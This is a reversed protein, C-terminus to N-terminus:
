LAEGDQSDPSEQLQDELDRVRQRLESVEKCLAQLSQALSGGYLGTTLMNLSSTLVSNVDSQRWIMPDLYARVEEHINRRLSAWLKGILPTQSQVQFPEYIQNAQQKLQLLNQELEEPPSGFTHYQGMAPEVLEGAHWREALAIRIEEMLWDSVLTQYREQEPPSLEGQEVKRAIERRIKAMMAPVDIWEEPNPKQMPTGGRYTHQGQRAVQELAELYGQVTQEITNHRQVYRRANEGIRRRLGEDRALLHLYAEIMPVEAPGLDVKLCCDDPIEAFQEYNSVLVPKGKGLTRLLAASMEGASPYRLQLCIDTADILGCFAELSVPGTIRVLGDLGMDRVL